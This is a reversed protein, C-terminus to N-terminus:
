NQTVRVAGVLVVCGAQQNTDTLMDAAETEAIDLDGSMAREPLLATKCSKGFPKVHMWTPCRAAFGVGCASVWNPWVGWASTTPKM